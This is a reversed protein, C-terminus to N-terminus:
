RDCRALSVNQDGVSRRDVRGIKAGLTLRQKRLVDHARRRRDVRPEHRERIVYSGGSTLRSFHRSNTNRTSLQRQYRKDAAVDNGLRIAVHDAFDKRKSVIETVFRAM